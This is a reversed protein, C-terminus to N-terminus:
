RQFGKGSPGYTGSVGVGAVPRDALRAMANMYTMAKVRRDGSQDRYTPAAAGGGLALQRLGSRM